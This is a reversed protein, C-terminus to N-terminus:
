FLDTLQKKRAEKAVFHIAGMNDKLKFPPRKRSQDIEEKIKILM